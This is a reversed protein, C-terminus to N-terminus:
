ELMVSERKPYKVEYQLVIEKQQQPAVIYQWTLKGSKDDVVAGSLEVPNISIDSNVAVPLQDFLTLKVPQSKKNKVIIKFARTDTQNSGIARRHNFQEIRNRAIVINKDRGLSISLTDVLAKTNLISRGIYTDEFYLNTEGDLLNYQDWQVIRAMLFADKDVKPVAYYEYEAPISYQKLEVLLKEGDSKISYPEQVEIEVTTQNEVFRTIIPENKPVYSRVGRIVVPNSGNDSYGTVVVESLVSVDETLKVNMDPRSAVLEQSTYGIFSFVLVAKSDPLTLSYNGYADSVTGITTGKVLINVGPIAAGSADVVKGKVQGINQSGAKDIYTYRAYNLLWPHLKPVVGSQNPVGNSFRLKVNRWDVGTNQFVEAKYTLALPSNVDKVRIDYKPFWGANSVLYSVHFRAQVTTKAQVRVEIEGTPLIKRDNQEKLQQALRGIQEQKKDISKNLHIAEEKIKSLEADYFSMAQQLQALTAGANQGLGGLTRNAVLLNQKEGLVELRAREQTIKDQLIDQQNKLSDIIRDKKVVDLYNLKHNVSLITFEGDAKVQISKEDIFPSLNKIRLLSKEPPIAIYGTEFLQAGDLFVTVDTLTTKLEKERFQQAGASYIFLVLLILISARM